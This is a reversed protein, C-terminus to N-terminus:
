CEYSLSENFIRTSYMGISYSALPQTQSVIRCGAHYGRKHQLNLNPHEREASRLSASPCVVNDRRKGGAMVPDELSRDM